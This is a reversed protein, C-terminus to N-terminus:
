NVGMVQTSVDITTTSQVIGLRVVANNVTSPPTISFAGSSTLYVAKGIDTSSFTTDSSGLTHTGLSIVTINNGATVASTSLAIGIIYFKDTTTADQDAKYVRGATEGNVAWRVLFSTNAAFSEGAVLTRRMLPASQVAAASGSGGTITSQDYATTKVRLANSNIEISTGDTQVAIKTGGGGTIAGGANFSTSVIKNEDVSNSALKALTVGSDKIRLANANLELTSGDPNTAIGSANKVIGGAADLKAGLQNSGDIQLSPNTAELKVRLQGAANGANTSELGSTTALDVSVVNGTITVMDGGTFSSADNFYVFTIADTGLTTVSGQQVWGQGAQTGEQIFTYAGNVEDIPSLSDFDTARTPAGSANVTYIGNQSATAQNKILIRNGTALTVGDIVSGNAFSTALTGAVLTAARVAQKPKLGQSAADVYAKTAADQASTPDAVNTLKFSGMSQAASFARTGDVKIYQTHPDGTTLGSLNNHAVFNADFNINLSEDGSPNVVSKQLAASGNAGVTSSVSLTGNLYAKTTDSATVKVQGDGVTALASDIGSLHAQVDATGATYNTPTGSVGIQKAGSSGGTTSALQTITKYRGDHTHANTGTSFDTGNQLNVLNDLITKTLETNTVGGVKISSVVITNTTLDVNRTYGNILRALISIDAM